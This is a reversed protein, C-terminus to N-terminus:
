AAITILPEKLNEDDKSSHTSLKTLEKTTLCKSDIISYRTLAFCSYRLKDLSLCLKIHDLSAVLM